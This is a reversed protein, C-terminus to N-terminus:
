AQMQAVLASKTIRPTAPKPIVAMLLIQKQRLMQTVLVSKTIRPTKEEVKLIVAMFLAPLKGM